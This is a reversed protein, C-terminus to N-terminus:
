FVISGHSNHNENIMREPIHTMFKGARLEYAVDDTVFIITLRKYATFLVLSAVIIFIIKQM